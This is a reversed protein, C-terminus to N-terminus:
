MFTGVMRWGQNTFYPSNLYQAPLNEDQPHKIKTSGFHSFFSLASFLGKYSSAPLASALFSPRRPEGASGAQIFM